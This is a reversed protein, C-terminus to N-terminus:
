LGLAHKLAAVVTSQQSDSLAAYMPLSLASRHYHEAQPCYGPTFGLREYYPQRYVPIYHLNVMVGQAHLAEYVERQTRGNVAPDLRVVYLHWSSGSDPNQRLPVLPLGALAEDYQKALVRRRAIFNDIRRLQSLGLAAALDTLRYNYGLEVQQYNWLEDAPRPAMRSADRCIGHSRFSGMKDALAKDNTMAMGGEGTTIIKVPHFSFVTIDSFRCDGIPRGRYRGGIGHSADEVVRFGYRGALAQIAAMDCSQGGLHVPILV